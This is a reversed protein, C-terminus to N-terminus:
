IALALQVGRHMGIPASPAKRVAAALSAKRARRTIGRKTAACAVSPTNNVESLHLLLVARLESTAVADIFAASQENSLHGTGSAVRNKLYSPYPGNRLMEADHNAEICLLDVGTFAKILAEPPEGLDHALGARMGTARDSFLLATPENADHPVRILEVDLDGVRVSRTVAQARQRVEPDLGRVTGASGFVSWKWKASVQAVGRSHDVHEHTVFIATLEEPMVGAFALRQKLTRPGIGCDVLVKTAGSDVLIANGSSGSALSVSRM